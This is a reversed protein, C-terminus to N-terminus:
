EDDPEGGNLNEVIEEWRKSAEKLLKQGDQEREIAADYADPDAILAEVHERILAEMTPPDLADLEWSDHGFEEVYAPSRSDSEKAWFAPPQYQQVQDWTLAIRKVEFLSLAENKLQRITALQNAHSMEDWGAPKQARFYDQWIFQSLRDLLDRTMDLGSPDHDGMHLITVKKGKLIKGLLRDGGAAWKESLSAYGRCSFYPVDLENCIRTIVGVLADKEIWVETYNEQDAWLDVKYNRATAEVIDAPDDWHRIARLMRGRDEIHDWDIYGNLRGKGVVDKVRNYSTQSSPLLGRAVFQYYLQRITLVYGQAAYEELIENAQEVLDLTKGSLKKDEYAIKV